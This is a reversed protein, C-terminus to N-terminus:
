KKSDGDFAGALSLLAAGVIAYLCWMMATNKLALFQEPSLSIVYAWGTYVAISFFWVVVARTAHATNRASTAAFWVISGFFAGAIIWVGVNWARYMEELPTTAALLSLLGLLALVTGLTTKVVKSATGTGTSYGGRFTPNRRHQSLTSTRHPKKEPLHRSGESPVLANSDSMYAVTDARRM